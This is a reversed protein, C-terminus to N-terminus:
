AALLASLGDIIQRPGVPKLMLRGLKAADAMRPSYTTAFMVKIKPHRQRARSALDIGDMGPMMIDTFLVDVDNEALLRLAEYGDKAVLLRFGASALIAETSERVNEDDEVFLITYRM